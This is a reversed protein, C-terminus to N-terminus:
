NGWYKKYNPTFGIKDSIFEKEEETVAQVSIVFITEVAALISSVVCFSLCIFFLKQASFFSTEKKSEKGWEKEEEDEREGQGGALKRNIESFTESHSFFFLNRLFSFFFFLLSISLEDEEKRGRRRRKKKETKKEKGSLKDGEIWPIIRKRGMRRRRRGRKHTTTRGRKHTTTCINGNIGLRNRAVTIEDLFFKSRLKLGSDKKQAWM